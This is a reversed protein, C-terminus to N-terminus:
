TTAPIRWQLADHDVVEGTGACRSCAGGACDPCARFRAASVDLTAGCSCLAALVDGSRLEFGEFAHGRHVHFSGAGAGAAEVTAAMNLGIM